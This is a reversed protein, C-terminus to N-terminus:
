ASLGLYKYIYKHFNSVAIEQKPSPRAAVFGSSKMGKQVWEANSFDQTYVEGWDANERWPDYYARTLAPQKGPAYRQIAWLDFFCSEPNEGDPRVRYCIASEPTMLIIFNPFLHWDIGAKAAM